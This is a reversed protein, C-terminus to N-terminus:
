HTENLAKIVNQLHLRCKPSPLYKTIASLLTTYACYLNSLMTVAKKSYAWSPVYGFLFAFCEVKVVLYQNGGQAEEPVNATRTLHLEYDLLHPPYLM